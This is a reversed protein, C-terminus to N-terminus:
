VCYLWGLPVLPVLTCVERQFEERVKEHERKGTSKYVLINAPIGGEGLNREEVYSVTQLGLCILNMNFGLIRIM